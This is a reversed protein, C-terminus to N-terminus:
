LCRKTAVFAFPARVGASFREAAALAIGVRERPQLGTNATAYLAGRAAQDGCGVATFRDAPEGVQYDSGVEFLRGNVGVLFDGSQEQESNKSAWGGAKLCTRVADIFTTTMFKDLDAAPAPPEFAHRLLQGMRFSSTFGMVYPGTRFVKTDARM